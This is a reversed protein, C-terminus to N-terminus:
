PPDPRPAAPARSRGAGSRRRGATLPEAHDFLYWAAALGVLPYLWVLYNNHLYNGAALAALHVAVLRAAVSRTTLSRKRVSAAIVALAAALLVWKLAGPLFYPLGTSDPARLFPFLLISRVFAGSDALLAPAACAALTVLFALAFRRHLLVPWLALVYLSGPLLKASCSTALLVGAAAERRRTLAWVSWLALAVAPPDTEGWRSVLAMYRAAFPVSAFAVAWALSGTAARVLLLLALFIAAMAICDTLVIGVEGLALALPAFAGITAVGYKYGLWRPDVQGAEHQIRATDPDLEMAYPNRGGAVARVAEVTNASQDSLPPASLKRLGMAGGGVISGAAVVGLLLAWPRGGAVGKLLGRGLGSRAALAAGAGLAVLALVRLWGWGFDFHKFFSDVAFFAAALLGWAAVARRADPM